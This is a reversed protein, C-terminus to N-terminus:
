FIEFPDFDEAHREWDLQDRLPALLEAISDPVQEVFLVVTLRSLLESSDAVVAGSRCSAECCFRPLPIREGVV